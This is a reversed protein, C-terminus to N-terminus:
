QRVPLPQPYAKPLNDAVSCAATRAFNNLFYGIRELDSPCDFAFEVARNEWM